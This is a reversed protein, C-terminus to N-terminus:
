ANKKEKKKPVKVSFWQELLSDTLSNFHNQMRLKLEEPNSAAMFFTKRQDLETDCIIWDLGGQVTHMDLKYRDSSLKELM